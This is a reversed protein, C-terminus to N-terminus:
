RSVPVQLPLRRALIEFTDLDFPASSVLGWGWGGGITVVMQTTTESGTTKNCVYVDMGVLVVPLDDDDDNRRRGCNHTGDKM